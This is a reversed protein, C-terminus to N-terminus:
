KKLYNIDHIQCDCYVHQHLIVWIECDVPSIYLSNRPWLVPSIFDATEASVVAVM